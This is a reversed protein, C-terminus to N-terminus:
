VVFRGLDGPLECVTLFEEFRESNVVFITSEKQTIVRRVDQSHVSGETEEITSGLQKRFRVFPVDIFESKNSIEGTAVDIQEIDVECMKLTATTVIVNQYIRLDSYRPSLIIAEEKALAETSLVVTSATKELMPRSRADQGPVVCFASQPCAPDMPIDVWDFTQLQNDRAKRTVWLKAVQRTKPGSKDTLFVWTSNRVRKCEVNMVWTKFQDELVLDIFGSSDTRRWEHEEYLISWGTSGKKVRHAIALQLPFGSNNVHQVLTM